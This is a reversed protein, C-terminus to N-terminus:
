TLVLNRRARYHFPDISVARKFCDVSEPTSRALMGEAYASEAESVGISLANEALVIPNGFETFGERSLEAKWMAMVGADTTSTREMSRIIDVSRQSERLIFHAEVLKLQISARNAAGGDLSRQFLEIAERCRGRQLALVGAQASSETLLRQTEQEAHQVRDREASVRSLQTAVGIAFLALAAVGFASLALLPKRRISKTLREVPTVPRAHIPESRQWRKLEDRLEAASQYRTSPEKQLCKLIITQLDRDVLAKDSRPPQPEDHIIQHLTQTTSGTFPPKGCVLSYLVAGLSYIDSRPDAQWGRGAAQEPPMFAPTGVLDGDLTLSSKAESLHALGFDVLMPIGSEVIINSPKVDRHTIGNQHVLELADAVGLVLQVAEEAEFDQHQAMKELSQGEVLRMVIYERGCWNGTNFVQVLNPHELSAAVQAERVIRARQTPQLGSFLTPVKLAVRRDLAVDQAAYVTAFTGQGLRGEIRFGDITDGEVPLRATSEQNLELMEGVSPAEPFRRAIESEEVPINLKRRLQFEQRLLQDRLVPNSRLNQFQHFYRDTDQQGGAAIRHEFDIMALELILADRGAVQMPLFDEIVPVSKEWAEEFALLIPEHEQWHDLNM